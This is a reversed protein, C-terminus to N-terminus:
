NSWFHHCHHGLVIIFLKPISQRDLSTQTTSGHQAPELVEISLTGKSSWQGLGKITLQKSHSQMATGFLM